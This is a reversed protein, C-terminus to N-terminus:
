SRARSSCAASIVAMWALLVGLPRVLDGATLKPRRGVRCAVALYIGLALGVWWTALVGWGLALLTIVAAVVFDGDFGYAFAIAAYITSWTAVILLLLAPPHHPKM